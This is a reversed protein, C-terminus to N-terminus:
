DAERRLGPETRASRGYRRLKPEPLGVHPASWGAGGAERAPLGDWNHTELSEVILEALAIARVADAGSVRPRGKTRVARVFDELELALPERGEAQRQDVQLMTGFVHAKIAEANTLDLGSVDVHGAKLAVSPRVILGQRTKFDLGIYSGEGWLRMKRTAQMSARSASLDAVTGDEFWIRATAVDEHGGFVRQGVASVAAVPAPVMSLVLDLDHIMLDLVVGVDTSRFTYIGLREAALYRPTFDLDDLVSMVPNFREIHGVALPVDHEAALDVLAEADALSPALPKEILAPIGRSLFATGVERHLVTPVAISVADVRDVLDRYDDVAEAGLPGAVAQAQELRADAVAVLKVGDLGALVRAHHRGLHGVGVVGVRLPEAM